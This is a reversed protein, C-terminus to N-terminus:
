FSPLFGPWFFADRTLFTQGEMCWWTLKERQNWVDDAVLLFDALWDEKM